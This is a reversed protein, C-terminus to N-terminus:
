KKLNRKKKWFSLFKEWDNATIRHKGESMHYGINGTHYGKEVEVKSDDTPLVVGRKGYLKYVESALRASHREAAPDAWDDLSNSEIYLLRPAILALLMHQDVPLMEENEVYNDLNKCFWLTRTTIFDLHEGTKGRLMAAGMCGSSNSIIFSFRKDNAGTWLATKGGRSHGCIAVNAKDFEARTEIYDMVRSAAFSWASISAWENGDCAERPRSYNALLSGEYVADALNDHHLEKFYFVVVAYGKNCIDEIPIFECNPENEIDSNSQQFNHMMYVITPLAKKSKKYFIRSYFSFGDFSIKVREFTIKNINKKEEIEFSLTQPAATPVKGYVYETLLNLCEERRYKEWEEATKIKEGSLTELLKPQM